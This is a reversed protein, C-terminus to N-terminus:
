FVFSLGTRLNVAAVTRPRVANLVNDSIFYLQVPGPRFALSLGLNDASYDNISYSAGATLWRMPTWHVAAGATTIKRASSGQHFLTFGLRWRENLSFQAGLYVRLPLTTTFAEDTREFGFIDNLTDLKTDFDLSDAGNIIDAGPFTEGAYTYSGNSRFYHANKNWNIQGGLDLVSANIILRDNIKAVLGLDFAFGTNSSFVRSGLDYLNFDFGLGATDISSVISASRFAYDTNLTLQYIDPDTYITASRRESDTEATSIGSLLKARAGVTVRGIQRSLGVSWENWDTLELAPAIEVTQGIFPANGRWFMEPLAKPYSVTGHLRVAHGAQLRWKGGPLQFGLTLTEFRQDLAVENQPDLRDIAQGVDLVLVDGDKRFFDNYSLEGSHSADFALGPLGVAIKKESPFFAPNLSAAHWLEPSQHLLIEQQAALPAAFLLFLPVYKCSMHM